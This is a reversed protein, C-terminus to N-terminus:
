RDYSRAQHVGCTDVCAVAMFNVVPRIRRRSNKITDDVNGDSAATLVSGM